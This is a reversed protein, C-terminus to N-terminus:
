GIYTELPYYHPGEERFLFFLYPRTVRNMRSISRSEEGSLVNNVQKQKSLLDSLSSCAVKEERSISRSEEGYFKIDLKKRESLFDLSSASGKIETQQSRIESGLLM